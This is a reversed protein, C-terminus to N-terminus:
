ISELEGILLPFGCYGQFFSSKVYDVWGGLDMIGQGGLILYVCVGFNGSTLLINSLYLEACLRAQYKSAYQTESHNGVWWSLILVHM